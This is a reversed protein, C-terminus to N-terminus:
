NKSKWTETKSHCNPCLLRSNEETNDFNNGDIHDYELTIPEDLWESNDCCQCRGNQKDFLHEFRMKQSRLEFPKALAEIRKIARISQVGNAQGKSIRLKADESLHLGRQKGSNVIKAKSSAFKTACKRNCFRGSGYKGTHESSCMECIM